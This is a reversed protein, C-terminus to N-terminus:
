KRPRFGSQTPQALVRRLEAIEVAFTTSRGACHNVAGGGRFVREGARCYRDSPHARCWRANARLIVAARHINTAPDKLRAIKDPDCDRVNIMALGVSCTGNAERSVLQPNGRSEHWVIAALTRPDVHHKKAETHILGLWPKLAVLIVVTLAPM